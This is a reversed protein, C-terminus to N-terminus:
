NYKILHCIEKRIVQEYEALRVEDAIENGSEDLLYSKAGEVDIQYESTVPEATEFYYHFDKGHLAGCYPDGIFLVQSLAFERENIGGFVVPLNADTGEYDYPIGALKCMISAYDASEIIEDCMGAPTESGRVMLPVNMRQECAFSQGNDVNFATGHDSFLSIVIDEDAYHEEIYQYLQNLYFDLEKLERVYVKEKNVSKTQKVTTKCENDIIRDELPTESQVKISRMFGGAVDHLDVFEIWLYQDTECFTELHQLVDEVVEKARYGQSSYQYLFRDIGRIYGQLPSVGDNGGIKATVYGADHFYEALVKQGRMFDLRYGENLNMHNTSHKGTWYTSISPLTCESGAYYESCQIGKSFFRETYPMLTKLDGKKIISYNFSDIFISIVLRKRESTRDQVLPIPKAFVAPGRTILTQRKEIPIYSYKGYASEVYSKTNGKGKFNMVNKSKEQLTMCVPILVKEKENVTYERGMSAVEFIELRNHICNKINGFGWYADFWSEAFGVYYRKRDFTKFVSGCMEVKPNRLPTNMSFSHEDELIDLEAKLDPNEAARRRIDDLESQVQEKDVPYTKYNDQFFQVRLLSKYAKDYDGLVQACAAFNYNAAINFPNITVAEHAIRYAREFDDNLIYYICWYSYLDYDSPKEKQYEKLATEIANVDNEALLAEIEKNM